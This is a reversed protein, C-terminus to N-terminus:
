LENKDKEVLVRLEELVAEITRVEEETIDFVVDLM